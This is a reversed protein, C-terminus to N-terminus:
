CRFSRAALMATAAPLHARRFAAGRKSYCAADAGLVTSESRALKIAAGGVRM